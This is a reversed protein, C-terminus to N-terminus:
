DFHRPPLKGNNRELTEIAAVALAAVKIFKKKLAESDTTKFSYMSGAYSTIYTIWDNITNRDDFAEGWRAEQYEREESIDILILDRSDPIVASIKLEFFIKYIMAGTFAGLLLILFAAITCIIVM